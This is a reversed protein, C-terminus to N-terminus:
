IGPVFWFVRRVQLRAERIAARQVDLKARSAALRGTAQQLREAAAAAAATHREIQASVESIRDTEAMIAAGSRKIDRKLQLGRIVAYAIGGALSALLVIVAIWVAM